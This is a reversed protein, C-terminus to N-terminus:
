RSTPTAGFKVYLEAIRREQEEKTGTSRIMGKQVRIHKRISKSFSNKKVM